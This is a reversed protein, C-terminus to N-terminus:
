AHYPIRDFFLLDGDAHSLHWNESNQAFPKLRFAAKCHLLAPTERKRSKKFYLYRGVTKRLVPHLGTCTIFTVRRQKFIEFAEAL